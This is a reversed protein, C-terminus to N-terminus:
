RPRSVEFKSSRPRVATASLLSSTSLEKFSTRVLAGIGSGFSMVFQSDICIVDLRNCNLAEAAQCEKSASIVAVGARALEHRRENCRAANHDVRLVQAEM